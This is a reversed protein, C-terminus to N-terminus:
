AASAVLLKALAEAPTKWALTKRPRGNLSAAFRALDDPTHVSLDTRKPMYQRLLGNTNENSGRQWPSHPDCFYVQVDSDLSFQVHEAMEKGQDWTISRRLADPLQAMAATMAERVTTATHDVPLHLLIVFRTTREVLTGVASKGDKGIILDGEWHGPVARDAVEAPRESINVMDPITGRREMRSRQRRQARGTRLCRALERRLEGRGQVYISKYITEHSVWMEPQDPFGVEKLWSAIQEPSWLGELLAVVLALLRPNSALKTPKPRRAEALARHQAAFARYREPGGNAAVERSVASTPRDLGRAIEAHPEKTRVGVQIEVREEFRLRHDGAKPELEDVPPLVGGLPGLVATILGQGPVRLEASIERYTKGRRRLLLINRNLDRDYKRLLRRRLGM